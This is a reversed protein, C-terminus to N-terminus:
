RAREKLNQWWRKVKVLSEINCLLHVKYHLIVTGPKARAVCDETRLVLGRHSLIRSLAIGSLCCLGADENLLVFGSLFNFRGEVSVRRARSLM